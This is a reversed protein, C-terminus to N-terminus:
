RPEGGALAHLQDALDRLRDAHAEFTAALDYLGAADLTRAFSGQEVYVGVGRYAPGSAFPAEGLFATWLLEGQHRLLHEPGKHDLDVRYSEPRHDSHGRCWSPEPLTVDGHDATTLTVTHPEANV